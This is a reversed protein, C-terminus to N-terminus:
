DDSQAPDQEGGELTLLLVEGSRAVTGQLAANAASVTDALKERIVPVTTRESRV